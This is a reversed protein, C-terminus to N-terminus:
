LKDSKDEEALLIQLENILIDLEHDVITWIIGLDVGFYEHVIRNRLGRLRSWAIHPHTQKYAEDIRNAADGVIELNRVVADVTKEDKTFADYTLSATYKKIKLAAEIMDELLLILARKSM